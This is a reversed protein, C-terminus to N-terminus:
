GRKKVPLADAASTVAPRVGTRYVKGKLSVPM